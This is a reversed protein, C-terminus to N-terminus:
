ATRGKKEIYATAEEAKIRWVRGIRFAPFDRRYLYTSEILRRSVSMYKAFENISMITSLKTEAM